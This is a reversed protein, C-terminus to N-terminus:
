LALTAAKRPKSNRTCSSSDHGMKKCTTCFSPVKVYIVEQWAGEDGMGIWIRNNRPKLVDMEVCAYAASANTIESTSLVVKLVPGLNGAISRLFAEQFLNAPLGPFEVWVPVISPEEDPRFKMTWKFFRFLKGKVYLDDKLLM